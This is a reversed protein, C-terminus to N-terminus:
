LRKSRLIKMKELFAAAVSADGSGSGSGESGEEGSGASGSASGSAGATEGGQNDSERHIEIDVIEGKTATIGTIAGGDKRAAIKGEVEAIRADLDKLRQVCEECFVTNGAGSGSGSGEAEELAEKVVADAEAAEDGSASGEDSGSGEEIFGLGNVPELGEPMPYNISQHAGTHQYVWKRADREKEFTKETYGQKPDEYNPVGAKWLMEKTLVVYPTLNIEEQIDEKNDPDEVAQGPAVVYKHHKGHQKASVVCVLALVVLTNLLCRM